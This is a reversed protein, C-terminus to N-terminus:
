NILFRFHYIPQDILLLKNTVPSEAMCLHHYEYHRGIRENYDIQHHQTQRHVIDVCEQVKFSPILVHGQQQEIHQTRRTDEESQRKHYEPISLDLRATKEEIICWWQQLDVYPNELWPGHNFYRYAKVYVDIFELLKDLM